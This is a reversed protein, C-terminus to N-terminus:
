INDNWAEGLPIAIVALVVPLLLAWLGFHVELFGGSGCGVVFGAVSPLTLRVQRWAKPRADPSRGRGFLLALNIALQTTNTTMVATSPSGPLALKVLSNQTAMAAVGLMGVFVAIARDPETFPGLAAGFGLFGVLFVLHLILLLRRNTRTTKSVFVISLAGVVAIFVPVSLMPGIQAFRGTVYHATLVVLNGTIHATFLGGLALFGIADVAGATTSLAALLLWDANCVAVRAAGRWM